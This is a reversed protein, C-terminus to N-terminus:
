AFIWRGNQCVAKIRALSGPFDEPSGSVVIFDARYGSRLAGSRELGMLGAANLTACQIAASVSLGADMMLALEKHVAIGHDVGMSGADTGLAMKVGLAHAQRVCELQHDLTRRATDRHVPSLVDARALADMPVLTPVWLTGAEALRRLNESGMFYGHEISSCGADVSAQVAASGNAHIMVPLKSRRAQRCARALEERSFQPPTERGFRELSNIGSNIIKIHDMKQPSQGIADDLTQNRGPSQGIMRGYRRCAHWAWCTASLHIPLKRQVKYQLVAGQCDGGDRVAGVGYDLSAQLHSCIREWAAAGACGIQNRRLEPDLTGSFALHVHADMLLPIATADSWDVGDALAAAEPSYPGISVIRGRSLTILRDKQAGGGMGDILSGVRVLRIRHDAIRGPVDTSQRGSPSKM